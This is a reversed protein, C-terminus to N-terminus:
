DPILLSVKGAQRLMANGGPHQFYYNTMDYVQFTRISDRIHFRTTSSSGFTTRPITALFKKSRINALREM